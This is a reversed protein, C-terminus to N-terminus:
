HSAVGPISGACASKCAKRVANACPARGPGRIVQPAFRPAFVEARSANGGPDPKKDRVGHHSAGASRRRTMIRVCGTTARWVQRSSPGGGAVHGAV